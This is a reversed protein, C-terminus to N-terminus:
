ARRFTCFRKGSTNFTIRNINSFCQKSSQWDMDTSMVVMGFERILGM